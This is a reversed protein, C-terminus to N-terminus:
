PKLAEDEESFRNPELCNGIEEVRDYGIFVEKYAGGGLMVTGLIGVVLLNRVVRRLQYNMTSPQFLNVSHGEEYQVNIPAEDSSNRQNFSSSLLSLPHSVRSIPPLKYLPLFEWIRTWTLNPNIFNPVKAEWNYCSESQSFM